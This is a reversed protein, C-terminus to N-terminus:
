DREGTSEVKGRGKKIAVKFGVLAEKLEKIQELAKDYEQNTLGMLILTRVRDLVQELKPFYEYGDLWKGYSKNEKNTDLYKYTFNYKDLAIIEYNGIVM